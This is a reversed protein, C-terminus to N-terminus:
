WGEGPLPISLGRGLERAPLPGPRFRGPAVADVELSKADVHVLWGAGVSLMPHCAWLFPGTERRAGLVTTVRVGRRPVPLLDFRREIEVPPDDLTAHLVAHEPDADVTAFVTSWVRGHDPHAEWPTDNPFMADWGGASSTLFDLRPGSPATRQYLLERGSRFDTLRQVRAGEHPIIQTYVEASSLVIATM